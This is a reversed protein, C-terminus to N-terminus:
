LFVRTCSDKQLFIEPHLGAVENLFLTMCINKEAFNKFSKLVAKKYYLGHIATESKISYKSIKIMM